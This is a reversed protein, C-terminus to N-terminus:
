RLVERLWTACQGASAMPWAVNVVVSGRRIELQISAGTPPETMATTAPLPLAIFQAMTPSRDAPLASPTSSESRVRRPAQVGDRKLGRGVLWKRLLNVNLGHSMAVAAVSAGPRQCEALVAVKFEASHVRRPNPQM